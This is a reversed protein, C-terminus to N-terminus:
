ITCMRTHNFKSRWEACTLHCLQGQINVSIVDCATSPPNDSLKSTSPQTTLIFLWDLSIKTLFRWGYLFALCFLQGTVLCATIKAVKSLGTSPVHSRVPTTVPLEPAFPDITEYKVQTERVKGLGLFNWSHGVDIKEWWYGYLIM